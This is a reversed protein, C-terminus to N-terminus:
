QQVPFHRRRSSAFLGRLQKSQSETKMQFNLRALPDNATTYGEPEDRADTDKQIMM